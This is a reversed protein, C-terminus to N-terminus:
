ELVLGTAALYLGDTAVHHLTIAMAAVQRSALPDEVVSVGVAITELVREEEMYVAASDYLQAMKIARGLIAALPPDIGVGAEAGVAFTNDDIRRVGALSPLQMQDIDSADDASLGTPESNCGGRPLSYRAPLCRTSLFSVTAVPIDSLRYRGQSGTFAECTKGWSM